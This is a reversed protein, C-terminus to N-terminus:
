NLTNLQHSSLLGQEHLVSIIHRVLEEVSEKDAHIHIDPKDPAEYPASLGTFEPIAGERAKKYLGKPGRREAVELPADVFM